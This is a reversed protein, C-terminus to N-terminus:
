AHYRSYQIFGLIYPSVLWLVFAIGLAAGFGLAARERQTFLLGLFVMVNLVVIAGLALFGLLICDGGDCLKLANLALGALPVLGLDLVLGIALGLEFRDVPAGAGSAARHRDWYRLGAWGAAVLLMLAIFPLLPQFIYLLLDNM